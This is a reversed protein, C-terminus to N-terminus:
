IVNNIQLSKDFPKNKQLFQIHERFTMGYRKSYGM